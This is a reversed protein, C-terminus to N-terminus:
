IRGKMFGGIEDEVRSSWSRDQVRLIGDFDSPLEIDDGLVVILSDFRRQILAYGAEVLINQRARPKLDKGSGKERGEDDGTFLAVVLDAKPLRQELCEITTQSGKRPLRSLILPTCGKKEVFAALRGLSEEDHGHVIFVNRGPVGSVVKANSAHAMTLAWVDLENLNTRRFRDPAIAGDEVAMLLHRSMSPSVIGSSLDIWTGSGVWSFRFQRAEIHDNADGGIKDKLYIGAYGRVTGAVLALAQGEYCTISNPGCVGEKDNRFFIMFRLTMSNSEDHM